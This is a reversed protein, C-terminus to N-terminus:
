LILRDEEHLTPENGIHRAKGNAEGNHMQEFCKKKCEMIRMFDKWQKMQKLNPVQNDQLFKKEERLKKGLIEQEKIKKLYTERPPHFLSFLHISIFFCSVLIKFNQGLDLKM